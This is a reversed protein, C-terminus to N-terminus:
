ARTAKGRQLTKVAVRLNLTEELAEYVIGMGGEGIPRVVKYPGLRAPHVGGQNHSSPGDGGSWSPIAALLKVVEVLERLEDALEPYDRGYTRVVADRDSARQLEEEFRVLIAEARSDLDSTSGNM